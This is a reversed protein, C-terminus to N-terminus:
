VQVLSEIEHFDMVVNHFGFLDSIFLKNILYKNRLFPKYKLIIDTKLVPMIKAVRLLEAVFINKQNLLYYFFIFVIFHSSLTKNNMM